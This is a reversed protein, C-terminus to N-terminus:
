TLSLVMMIERSIPAATSMPLPMVGWSRMMSLGFSASWSPSSTRMALLYRRGRGEPIFAAVGSSVALAVVIQWLDLKGALLLLALSLTALAPVAESVARARRRDWRDVLAGALPLALLLAALALVRARAM